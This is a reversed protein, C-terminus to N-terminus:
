HFGTQDLGVTHSTQGVQGPQPAVSAACAERQHVPRNILSNSEGSVEQGTEWKEDNLGYVAM